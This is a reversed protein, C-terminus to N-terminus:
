ARRCVDGADESFFSLVHRTIDNFDGALTTVLVRPLERRHFHM